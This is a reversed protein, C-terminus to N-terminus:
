YRRATISQLLVKAQDTGGTGRATVQYFTLGTPTNGTGILLTDSEFTKYEIISSPPTSIGSLTTGYSVANSSWWSSDIDLEEWWEKSNDTDPDMANLTWVDSTGTSTAEPETPQESLWEESRRLAAEASQFAQNANRFNGAMKEELITTKMGTIGIITMILLVILSIFLVVGSQKTKYPLNKM